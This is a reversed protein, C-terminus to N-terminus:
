RRGGILLDRRRRNHAIDFSWSAISFNLRDRVVKLPVEFRTVSGDFSYCVRWFSLRFRSVALIVTVAFSTEFSLPLISLLSRWWRSVLSPRAIIPCAAFVQSGLVEAVLLGYFYVGVGIQLFAAENCTRGCVRCSRAREVVVAPVL